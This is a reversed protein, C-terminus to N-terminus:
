TCYRSYPSVENPHIYPCRKLSEDSATETSYRYSEVDRKLHPNQWILSARGAASNVRALVFGATGGLVFIIFYALSVM